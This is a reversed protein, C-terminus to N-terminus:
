EDRIISIYAVQFPIEIMLCIDTFNGRRDAETLITTISRSLRFQLFFSSGFSDM